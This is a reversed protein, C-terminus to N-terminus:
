SSDDTDTKCSTKKFEVQTYPNECRIIEKVCKEVQTAEEVLCGICFGLSNLHLVVKRKCEKEGQIKDTVEELHQVFADKVKSGSESTPQCGSELDFFEESEQDFVNNSKVLTIWQLHKVCPCITEKLIKLNDNIHEQVENWGVDKNQSLSTIFQLNYIMIQLLVVMKSVREETKEYSSAKFPLFWFSPETKADKILNKLGNIDSKLKKIHKNMSPFDPIQNLCEDLRGLCRAMQRKVLTAPRVPQLIIELLVMCFLGISVETLRAIAFEKPPGYNKRGLILLAGIVASIGGSEGFMRSHQLLSTFVIWPLIIIFRIEAIQNLLCSGLVGYVSGIATGQIRNNAVTFVPQRGEVFSIAITLGSWYGNKKDFFMGLLVALGLSVSCKLAFVLRDKNHRAEHEKTKSEKVINNNNNTKQGDLSEPKPNMSSNNILQEFCSLFFYVPLNKNTPSVSTITHISKDFLLDKREPVTVADDFPVFCKADELKLTQKVRESKLYTKLEEDIVVPFSSIASVAMKMGNIPTEMNNLRDGMKMFSKKFDRVRYREWKVGEQIRNIHHLLKTGSKAFPEAQAILDDATSKDQSLFAKLYLSSRESANETYSQFQKKVETVALRPYPLILALVSGSAGLATCAAIHVPHTVPGAEHGHVVAGVYIIVLQAFAIRKTLIPLCEPLAVLFASLGVAMTAGTETFRSTGVIWLCLMTSPVVLVTACLAHWAGRLTTGLTADSVILIATVYAVSPYQIQHRVHDPGYLATCGIITCAIATRFASSLRERWIATAHPPAVAKVGMKPYM